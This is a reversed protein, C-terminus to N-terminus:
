DHSEIAAAVSQGPGPRPRRHTVSVRAVSALSHTLGPHGGGGGHLGCAGCWTSPGPVPLCVCVCTSRWVCIYVCVCESVYLYWPVCVNVYTCVYVNLSISTGYSISICACQCMYLCMYVCVCACVCASLCLYICVCSVYMCVCQRGRDGVCLCM